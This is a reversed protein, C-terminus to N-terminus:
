RASPIGVEIRTEILTKGTVQLGSIARFVDFM